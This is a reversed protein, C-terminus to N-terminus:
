WYGHLRLQQEVFRKARKLKTTAEKVKAESEELNKKAEVFKEKIKEHERMVEVHVRTAKEIDSEEAWDDQPEHDKGNYAILQQMLPLLREDYNRNHPDHIIQRRGRHHPWYYDEM